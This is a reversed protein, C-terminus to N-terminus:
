TEVFDDDAATPVPTDVTRTDEPLNEIGSQGILFREDDMSSVTNERDHVRKGIGHSVNEDKRVPLNCLDRVEVGFFEALQPLLDFRRNSDKSVCESGISEVDPEVEASGRSSTHALVEMNM